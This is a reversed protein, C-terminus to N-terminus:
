KESGSYGAADPMVTPDLVKIRGDKLARLRLKKLLDSSQASVMYNEYDTRVRDKIDSFPLLREATKDECKIIHYGYVTKVLESVEGVKLSFAADEFPKVMVGRPFFGLDGDKKAAAKDHNETSALANFDAGSRIKNLIDLAKAYAIEWERQGAARVDKAASNYEAPDILIHRVRVEAKNIYRARNGYYYNFLDAESLSLETRVLAKLALEVWVVNEKYEKATIGYHYKLFPDPDVKTRMGQMLREMHSKFGAEVEANSIVINRRKIESRILIRDIMDKMVKKGGISKLEDYFEQESIGIGDVVAIDGSKLTITQRVPEKVEAVAPAAKEPKDEGGTWDEIKADDTKEEKAPQAVVPELPAIIIKSAKSDSINGGKDTVGKDQSLADIEPLDLDDKPEQKKNEVPDNGLYQAEPMPIIEQMESDIEAAPVSKPKESQRELIDDIIAEAKIDNEKKPDEVTFGSDLNDELKAKDDKADTAKKVKKTDFPKVSPVGPVDILDPLFDDDEDAACVVAPIALMLFAVLLLIKHKAM